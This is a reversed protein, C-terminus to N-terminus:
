EEGYIFEHLKALTQDWYPVLMDQRDVYIVDYMNDYPIRDTEFTYQLMDPVETLMSWVETQPINTTVYGLIGQMKETMQALSMQRIEALLQQLLYRQRETREYDSNGVMRNRAYAVAQVGDCRLLGGEYPVLHEAPDIHLQRNCMDDIYGNMVEAEAASIQLTVGGILDIIDVLNWFDVAVYRDVQVKYTDTVTECLLQGAGRAYANNLKQYGVGPIDVYTDRMLSVMTVRNRKRNISVLIMSDSNGNWNQNQRDVGVLLVNYIDDDSVTERAAINSMQDHISALEDTTVKVGQREEDSVTEEEMQEVVQEPIPEVKNTEEDPVYNINSYMDQGLKYIVGGSIIVIAFVVCLSILFVKGMNMGTKRRVTNSRHERERFRLDSQDRRSRSM